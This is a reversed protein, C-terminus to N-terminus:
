GAKVFDTECDACSINVEKTARVIAGCIPCTYKISNSGKGKAAQKPIKNRRLTFSDNEDLNEIYTKAEETLATKCYGYKSTKEVTLGRNEAESKFRKNHYFGNRSTDQIGKQVNFLHVMEHLLTECTEIYPRTLHEACLNIEYFGGKENEWAKWSTCWGYAGRTVDHNVAIVPTELEGNYFRKNFAEFLTELKGIIPQLSNM